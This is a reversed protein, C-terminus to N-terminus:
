KIHNLITEIAKGSKENRPIVVISDGCLPQSLTFCNVPIGKNQPSFVGFYPALHVDETKIFDLFSQIITEESKDAKM